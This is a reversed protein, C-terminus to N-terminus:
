KSLEFQIDDDALGVFDGIKELLKKKQNSNSSVDVFYETGEIEQYYRFAESDKRIYKSLYEDEAIMDEFESFRNFLAELIQGLAETWSAVNEVDGFVILKRIKEGKLDVDDAFSVRRNSLEPVFNTTPFPWIVKLKKEWWVTREKLTTEDWRDYNKIFENLLLPSDSFGNEITKKDSFSRNSYKSNYGTLTLNPLTHLYQSHIEAADPGLEKMWDKNLTQPMVHEISLNSQSNAMQKLYFAEKSQNMDEVSTLVFNVFVKKQSYFQNNAISADLEKDTPLRQSHMKDLIVFKLIDIYSTDPYEKSFVEVERSLVAFLKNLGMSPINCIIRRILFTELVSFIEQVEAKNLDEIEYKYLVDLLFPFTVETQLYSLRFAGESVFNFKDEKDINFKLFLYNRLYILVHDYFKKVKEVNSQDDGIEEAFLEKFKPYVLNFNVAKQMRSILYFRFFDTIFDDNVDILSSEITKWYNEYVLNRMADDNLMLAFNRIKDGDTLPKGTSNISEFVKQPNDDTAELSLDVIEFKALTDIYEELNNKEKFYGYFIKYANYLKSKKDTVSIQNPQSSSFYIKKFIEDDVTVARLKIRNKESSYKNFLYNENIQGAPRTSKSSDELVIHYIAMIMLLTTTARQQGDIITNEMGSTPIYVINGFYHKRDTDKIEELDNLFAHINRSEWSYPRQFDPITFQTEPKYLFSKINSQAIKM